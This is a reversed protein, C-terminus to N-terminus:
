FVPHYLTAKHSKRPSQLSNKGRFDWTKVDTKLPPYRAFKLAFIVSYKQVKENVFSIFFRPSALILM